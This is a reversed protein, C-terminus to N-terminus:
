CHTYGCYICYPCHGPIDVFGADKCKPCIDLPADIDEVRVPPDDAELLEMCEEPTPTVMERFTERLKSDDLSEIFAESQKIGMPLASLTYDGELYRAVIKSVGDPMSVTAERGFGAQGRGPIRHLQDRIIELRMPQPVSQGDPWRLIVSILRGLAQADAAVDGKGSTIFVDYPEGTEPHFRITGHVRDVPTEQSITVSLGADIKPRLGVGNGNKYDDTVVEVPIGDAPVITKERNNDNSDETYYLVQQDRSGNRYVTGGKCGKDYLLMYAEAVDEVTASNPLNITKSVSSDIWKQAAAQTEVHEKPTIDKTTVFYKPINEGFKEQLISFVGAEEEAVGIRSRAVWKALFYPEIGTTTDLMTGVSGTPAVTNITVNRIGYRRIRDILLGSFNQVFKSNVFQSSDFAPFPGREQALNISETYSTVAIFEFLRDTFKIAEPSGYRLGLRILLEGYGLIGLGIRREKKQQEEIKPHHYKNLDVVNDLFKVGTIIANGLEDWDILGAAQADTSEQEPFQQDAKSALIFRPLCLHGLNCISWSPLSQEGCPNTCSIKSYYYSNSEKNAREIFLLGPEGSEWAKQTILNWLHRARVTKYVDVRKGKAKWEEIDGNWESDYDPDELNPFVLDWDADDKVAQMFDDSILVSVNANKILNKNRSIRQGNVEFEERLSKAKIFEEIDPHWCWLGMLAAGRRSGGQEVAGTIQSYQEMWSVVGSSRGNVKRVIAGKPRHSSNDWGVGGGRSFTDFLLGWHKAIGQRSDHPPPFVYCNFLTLDLDTRGAGALIRGAPVFKEEKMCKFIKRGLKKDGNAVAEAVRKCIDKYSKEILVELQWREVGEIREWNDEPKTRDVLDLTYKKSGDVTTVHKVIGVERSEGDRGDREFKRQLSVIVLDGSEVVANPDKMAYRDLQIREQYDKM